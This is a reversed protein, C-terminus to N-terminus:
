GLALCIVGALVLAAAVWQLPRLRERLLAQAWFVTVAPSLWGLVAVVSLLGLTTATTYLVNATVLLAGVLAAGPVSGARLRLNPRLLVLVVALTALASVRAVAVTVYQDGDGDGGYGYAVLVVGVTAAAFVALLIGARSAHAEPKQGREGPRSILVIGAITLVMGALAIVGPREGRALGWVVPVVAAGAFVPAVVSMPARAMAEYAGLASLTIGLGAVVPAILDRASPAPPRVVVLVVLAVALATVQSILVVAWASARRSEMGAVFDSSGWLLSAALALFAALV